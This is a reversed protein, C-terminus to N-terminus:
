CKYHVPLLLNDGGTDDPTGAQIPNFTLPVHYGDVRNGQDPTTEILLRAFVISPNPINCAM